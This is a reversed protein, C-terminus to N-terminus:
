FWRVCVRLNEAFHKGWGRMRQICPPFDFRAATRVKVVPFHSLPICAEPRAVAVQFSRELDPQKRESEDLIESLRLSFKAAASWM